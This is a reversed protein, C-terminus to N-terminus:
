CIHYHYFCFYIYSKTYVIIEGIYLAADSNALGQLVLGASSSVCGVMAITEDSILRQLLKLLGIGVAQQLSGRLAGYYGLKEPSWCFPPGLQYVSDISFRGIFSIITLTFVLLLTNLIWRYGRNLPGVFLKVAATFTEFISSERSKKSKVFSEPIFYATIAAACILVGSFLMPYLFGVAKIFFGGVFSFITGAIGIALEMMTIGFTRQKERSKTMDAIYSFCALLMAFMQGTM